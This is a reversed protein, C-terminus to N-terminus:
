TLFASLQAHLFGNTALIFRNHIQWHNGRRNTVKGGAESVIISGAAGDWPKINHHLLADIRGSALYALELAVAGFKRIGRVKNYLDFFLNERQSDITARYRASFSSAVFFADKLTSKDSVNIRKGNLFAGKGKVAYFLEKRNPEYIVGLIPERGRALGISTCFFPISNIYNNTGDIPDIVWQLESSANASGSEEAIFGTEPFAASLERIITQEVEVDANTVFDFRAKASVELNSQKELALKGAVKAAKIAAKLFEDM